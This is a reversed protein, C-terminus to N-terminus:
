RKSSFSKCIRGHNSSSKRSEMRRPSHQRQRQRQRRRIVPPSPGAPAAARARRSEQRRHQGHAATTWTTAPGETRSDTRGGTRGHQHRHGGTTRGHQQAPAISTSGPTSASPAKTGNAAQLIAPPRSRSDTRGNAPTGHDEQGETGTGTSSASEAPGLTAANSGALAQAM